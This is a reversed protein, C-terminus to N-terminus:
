DGSGVPRERRGMKAFTMATFRYMLHAFKSFPAYIILTFVMVLHVFYTGFALPAVDLLRLIESLIGTLITIYLVLIFHSDYYTLSGTKEGSQGFRRSVIMTVGTVALLAGLNGLIKVPHSLALPTSAVSGLHLKNIWYMLAVCTTTAMLAFFGYMAMLHSSYRYSNTVCKGMKEHLAIGKIVALAAPIPSGAPTALGPSGKKLDRWFRSLGILASLAMLSAAPIFIADIAHVPMMNSFVIPKMEMFGPRAAVSIMGGIWVVPVLLLLWIWKAGLLMDGMFDFAAYHKFSINR